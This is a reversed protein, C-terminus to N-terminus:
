LKKNLGLYHQGWIKKQYFCSSINDTEPKQCQMKYGTSNNTKGGLDV